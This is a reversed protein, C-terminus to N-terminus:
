IIQLTIVIVNFGRTYVEKLMNFKQQLGLFLQTKSTFLPSYVSSISKLAPYGMPVDSYINITADSPVPKGWGCITLVAVFLKSIFKTQYLSLYLTYKLYTFSDTQM